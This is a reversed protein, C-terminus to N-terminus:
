LLTVHKYNIILLIFRFLISTTYDVAFFIGFTDLKSRSENKECKVLSM